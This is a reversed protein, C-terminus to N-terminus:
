DEVTAALLGRWAAPLDLPEDTSEAFRGAPLEQELWSLRDRWRELAAVALRLLDRTEEYEITTRDM